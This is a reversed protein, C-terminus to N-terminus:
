YKKYPKLLIAMDSVEINFIILDDSTDARIAISVSLFSIIPLSLLKFGLTKTFPKKVKSALIVKILNFCANLM